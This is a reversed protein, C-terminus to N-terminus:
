EYNVRDMEYNLLTVCQSAFLMKKGLSLTTVGQRKLGLLTKKPMALHDSLIFVPNLDVKQKCIDIGKNDLVYLVHTKLFQQVLKEFGFGMIYVGPQLCKVTDKILDQANKLISVILELIAQEHFGAISLGEQSSLKITQPFNHSSDLVIYVDVDNRFGNAVFFANMIAHAIVEFHARNGISCQIKTYDTTGKRARIIFTRM